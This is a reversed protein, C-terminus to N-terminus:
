IRFCLPMKDTNIAMYLSSWAGISYIEKGMYTKDKMKNMGHLAVISELGIFEKDLNFSFTEEFDQLNISNSDHRISSQLTFSM